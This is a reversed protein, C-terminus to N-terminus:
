NFKFSQVITELISKIKAQDFAKIGQDPSYNGINMSHITYEVAYCQNDRVTRYSTTNYYNGAGADSLTIETFATGGIMVKKNKVVSGNEAKLCNKVADPDSSTGVIFRSDGFNTNPMFSKPINVFALLMGLTQTNGQWNNTYSGDGGSLNFQSPYTFSFLKSPDTYTQLGDGADTISGTVCNTYTNKDNVTVFANDGKSWFVTAGSEYRGGDASISQPLTSATGDPFTVAVNNKGYAAKLIGEQCYYTVNNVVTTDVPAVPEQAPKGYLCFGIIVVVIVILVVVAWIGKKTM